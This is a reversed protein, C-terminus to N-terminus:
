IVSNPTPEGLTVKPTVKFGGRGILVFRLFGEQLTGILGAALASFSICVPM